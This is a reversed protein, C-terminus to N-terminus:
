RRPRRRPDDARVRVPVQRRTGLRAAVVALGVVPLALLAPAVPSMEFWSVLLDM